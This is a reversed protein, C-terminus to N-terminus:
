GRGPESEGAPLPRRFWWMRCRAGPALQRRQAGRREDGALQPRVNRPVRDDRYGGAGGGSRLRIDAHGHCHLVDRRLEPYRRTRLPGHRQKARGRRQRIHGPHSPRSRHPQDDRRDDRRQGGSARRGHAHLRVRGHESRHDGHRVAHQAARQLHHDGDPDTASVTGRVEGSTPDGAGTNVGTIVPADDVNAVNVTVTASGSASTGDTATYTFTDVGFFNANPTYTFTGDANLMLTGNAPQTFSDVGLTGGGSTDIDNGLLSGPSFTM